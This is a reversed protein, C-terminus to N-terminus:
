SSHIDVPAAMCVFLPYTALDSRDACNTFRKVLSINSTPCLDPELADRDHTIPNAQPEKVEGTVVWALSDHVDRLTLLTEKTLQHYTM